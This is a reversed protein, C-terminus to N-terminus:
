AQAREDFVGIVNDKILLRIEVDDLGLVDALIEASHQGIHPAPRRVTFPKAGSMRAPLGRQLETKAEGPVGVEAFFNAALGGIIHEQREVDSRTLGSAVMGGVHDTPDVLAVTAGARAAAVAAAVGGSTAGYVLVDFRAPVTVPDPIGTV